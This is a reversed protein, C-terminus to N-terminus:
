RGPRPNLAEFAGLSTTGPRNLQLSGGPRAGLPQAYPQPQVATPMQPAPAMGPYGAPMPARMQPMQQPMM